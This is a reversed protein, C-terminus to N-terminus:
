KLSDSKKLFVKGDQLTFNYKAGGKNIKLGKSVNVSTDGYQISDKNSSIDANTDDNITLTYSGDHAKANIKSFNGELFVEGDDTKSDLEGKFGIVRVRGDANSLKLTGDSDRVNIAGDDGLIELDGSVGELRIEKDTSIKLNSKKPVFVELRVRYANNESYNQTTNTQNVAKILVESDTHNVEFEIPKQNQTRSFKTITYSVESKEWGRVLVDCNPADITVKPTGKVAFSDTKKDISSASYDYDNSTSYSYGYSKGDASSGTTVTLKNVDAVAKQYDKQARRLETQAEDIASNYEKISEDYNKKNKDLEAKASKMAEDYEAQATQLNNQDKNAQAFEAQAQKMASGYEKVAEQYEKQAEVLEAQATKLNTQYETVAVKYEEQAAKAEESNTAINPITFSINPVNIPPINVNVPAVAIPPVNVNVPPISSITNAVSYSGNPYYDEDDKTSLLNTVTKVQKGDNKRRITLGGNVSELKIQSEGSGLKSYLKKGVYQGKKVFLGFDNTISGNLTDAKITADVDSPITLIASGNVTELSITGKNEIEDFSAESSGNVTSLKTEGSLNIAKVSGNVASANVFNKMKTISVSGNVTEIKELYANKPVFLRFEVELKGYRNWQYNSKKYDTSVDFSNKNANIKVDLDNLREKTDATKTYEFKIEDKEWAEITISGNVNSVNIKGDSSFPYTQEFHETEDGVNQTYNSVLQKTNQLFNTNQGSFFVSFLLLSAIFQM